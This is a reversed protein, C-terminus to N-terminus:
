ARSYKLLPVCWVERSHAIKGYLLFDPTKELHPSEPEIITSPQPRIPPRRVPPAPLVSDDSMV